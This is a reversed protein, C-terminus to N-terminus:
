LSQIFALWQQAVAEPTFAECRQRGGIVLQERVDRSTVIKLIADALAQADGSRVLMGYTGNALVSRPGGGIADTAVVPAGCAMAEVIVLCFAEDFSSMAFVDASKINGFPNESYGPLSVVDKLGFRMILDELSRREPGNGFIVLKADMSQRVIAFAELLLPFNKRKVLRALSVIVPGQKRQLWPHDPQAHNQAIVSEVDVPNPIVATRCHQLSVTQSLIDLMGESVATIGDARPYLLRALWPLSRMRLHNRHDLAVDSSSTDGQYVILKARNRGVLLSGLMAPVSMMAPMSILIDPRAERLFRAIPLSAGRARRVGLLILKTEDPFSINRGLRNSLSLVYVERIGISWFGRTLAAAINAFAGRLVGLTIIAIKMRHAERMALDCNDDDVVPARDHSGASGPPM